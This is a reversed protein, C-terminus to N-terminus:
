KHEKESKYELFDADQYLSNVVKYRYWKRGNLYIYKSDITVEAHEEKTQEKLAKKISKTIIIINELDNKFPTKGLEKDAKKLAEIIDAKEM